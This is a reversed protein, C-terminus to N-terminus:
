TSAESAAAGPGEPSPPPEDTRPTGSVEAAAAAAAAAKEAAEPALAIGLENAEAANREDQVFDLFAQPSNRFRDRISSPLEDFMQQTRTVLNMAQQLELGSALGYEGQYKATHTIAGTKQFKRMISNIDADEKFQQQAPKRGKSPHAKQRESPSFHNKILVNEM